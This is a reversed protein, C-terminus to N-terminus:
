ESVLSQILALLKEAECFLRPQASPARRNATRMM